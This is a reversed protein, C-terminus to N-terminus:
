RIIIVRSARQCSNGEYKQEYTHKHLSICQSLSQGALPMFLNFSEFPLRARINLLTVAVCFPFSLPKIVNTSSSSRSCLTPAFTSGQSPQTGRPTLPLKNKINIMIEVCPVAPNHRLKHPLTAFRIIVSHVFNM